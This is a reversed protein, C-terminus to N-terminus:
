RCCVSWWSSMSVSHSHDGNINNINHHIYQHSIIIFIIINNHLDSPNCHLNTHSPATNLIVNTTHLSSLIVALVSIICVDCSISVNSCVDDCVSVTHCVCTAMDASGHTGNFRSSTFTHNPFHQAVGKKSEELQEEKM